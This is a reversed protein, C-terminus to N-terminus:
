SEPDTSVLHQDARAGAASRWVTQVLEARSNVQLKAFIRKLHQKVTNESVYTLEAIKRTTLGQSVLDAIQHERPSLPIASDPLGQDAHAQFSLFSVVADHRSRLRVAKVALLGGQDPTGLDAPQPGSRRPKAVPPPVTARDEHASVVRRHGTRLEELAQDLVPQARDLYTAACGPATKFTMRNRFILTGDTTTIVVPQTAADLADALLVTQESVQDYRRARTLAAGIQEALVAMAGLDELSFPPADPERAMNLTAHVTGDVVVPAELSHHYGAKELVGLVASERWSRGPPLRSSDAPRQSAVAQQLVPDDTRGVDEYQQLFIDPVNAAVDIPHLTIPDLVYFGYGAAHVVKSVASLYAQQIERQSAGGQIAGVASLV